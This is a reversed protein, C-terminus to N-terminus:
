RREAGNRRKCDVRQPTMASWGKLHFRTVAARWSAFLAPDKAALVVPADSAAMPAVDQDAPLTADGADAKRGWVSM